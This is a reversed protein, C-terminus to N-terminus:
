LRLVTKCNSGGDGQTIACNSCQVTHCYLKYKRHWQKQVKCVHLASKPIQQIISSFSWIAFTRDRVLRGRINTFERIAALRAGPGSRGPLWRVFDRPCETETKYFTWIKSIKGSDRYIGASPLHFRIAFTCFMVLWSIAMEGLRFLSPSCLNLM